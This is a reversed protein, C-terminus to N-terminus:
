LDLVSSRRRNDGDFRWDVTVTSVFRGANTRVTFSEGPAYWGDANVSEIEVHDDNHLPVISIVFIRSNTNNICARIGNGAEVRWPDDQSQAEQLRVSREMAEAQRVAAEASKQAAELAEEAGARSHRADIAQWVAVGAAVVSAVALVVNLTTTADV